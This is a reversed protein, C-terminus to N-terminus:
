LLSKLAEEKTRFIYYHTFKTIQVRLTIPKNTSEDLINKLTIEHKCDGNRASVAVGDEDCPKFGVLVDDKGFAYFTEDLQPLPLILPIQDCLYDTSFYRQQFRLTFDYTGVRWFGSNYEYERTVSSHDFKSPISVTLSGRITPSLTNKMLGVVTQDLRPIGYYSYISNVAHERFKDFEDEFFVNERKVRIFCIDDYPIVVEQGEEKNAISTLIAANYSQFWLIHGFFKNLYYNSGRADWTLISRIDTFLFFLSVGNM